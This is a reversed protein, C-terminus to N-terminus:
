GFWFVLFIVAIKPSGREFLISVPPGTVSARSLGILQVAVRGPLADPRPGVRDLLLKDVPDVLVGARGVGHWHGDGQEFDGNFPVQESRLAVGVRQFKDGLSKLVDHM